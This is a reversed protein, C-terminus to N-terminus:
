EYSIINSILNDVKINYINLFILIISFPPLLKITDFNFYFKIYYKGKDKLSFLNEIKLNFIYEELKEFSDFFISSTKNYLRLKNNDFILNYTLIYKNIFTDGLSLGENKKYLVFEYNITAQYGNVILNRIEINIKKDLFITGSIKDKSLTIIINDGNSFIFNFFLVIFLLLIFLFLFPKRM